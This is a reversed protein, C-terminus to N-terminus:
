KILDFVQKIAWYEPNGFCTIADLAANFAICIFMFYAIAGCILGLGLVVEDNKEIDMVNKKSFFKSKHIAISVLFWIIVIIINQLGDFYAQKVLTALLFDTTTGLKEALAQIMKLQKEDM